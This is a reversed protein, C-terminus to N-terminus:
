RGPDAGDPEALTLPREALVEDRGSLWRLVLTGAQAPLKLRVPVYGAIRDERVLGCTVPPTKGQAFLCLRGDLGDPATLAISLEGGVPAREPADIAIQAETVRIPVDVLPARNDAAWLVRYDGPVAPLRLRSPQYGGQKANRIL